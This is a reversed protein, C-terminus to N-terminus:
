QESHGSKKYTRSLILRLKERERVLDGSLRIWSFSKVFLGGVGVLFSSIAALSTASLTNAKYETLINGGIVWGTLFVLAVLIFAVGSQAGVSYSNIRRYDEPTLYSEASRRGFLLDRWVEQQAELRDKLKDKDVEKWSVDCWKHLSYGVVNAFHTPFPQHSQAIIEFRVAIRGLRGPSLLTAVEKEDSWVMITHWYTDALSGGATFAQGMVGNEITLLGWVQKSWGDWKEYLADMDFEEVLLRELKHGRALPLPPLKITKFRGVRHNLQAVSWSLEDLSTLENDSFAFRRIQGAKQTKSAKISRRSKRLRGFTEVVLWGLQAATLIDIENASGRTETQKDM